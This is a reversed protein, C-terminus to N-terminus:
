YQNACSSGTGLLFFEGHSPFKASPDAAPISPIFLSSILGLISVGVIVASWLIWNHMGGTGEAPAHANLTTLVFLTGGLVQGGLCAIMTTMSVYGNAESIREEPVLNPLSGYKAPSFFTSQSAMLFLTVLMFPVSQSVIAMTGLIM